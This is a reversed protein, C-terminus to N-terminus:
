RDRLNEFSPQMYSGSHTGDGVHCFAGRIGVSLGSGLRIRKLPRAYVVAKAARYRVIFAQASRKEPVVVAGDFRPVLGSFMVTTKVGDDVASDLGRDQVFNHADRGM